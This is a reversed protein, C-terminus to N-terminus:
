GRRAAAADSEIAAFLSIQDPRAAVAIRGGLLPRLPEAAAESIAYCTVRADLPALRAARVALAFASASRRSYVLVGDISRTTLAFRATESLSGVPESRYVVRTVVRFGDPALLADLDAARHAGAAYLLPGAAPDLEGRIKAALAAADGGASLAAAFGARRASLASRDGVALVPVGSLRPFARNGALAAAANGSTLLIAQFPLDPVPVSRDRVITLAPSLIPAHGLAELAMATRTADPEPRTVVLRM